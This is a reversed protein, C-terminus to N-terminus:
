FVDDFSGEKESESGSFAVMFMLFFSIAKGM